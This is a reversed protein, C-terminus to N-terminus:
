SQELLMATVEPHNDLFRREAEVKNSAMVIASEFVGRAQLVLRRGENATLGIVLAVGIQVVIQVLTSDIVQLLVWEILGQGVFLVAALGWAGVYLAWLFGFIAASWSFGDKIFVVDPKTRDAKIHVTFVIM